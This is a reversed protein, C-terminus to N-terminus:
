AGAQDTRGSDWPEVAVAPVSPPTDQRYPPEFGPRVRIVHGGEERRVFIPTDHRERPFLVEDSRLFVPGGGASSIKDSSRYVSWITSYGSQGPIMEGIRTQKQGMGAIGRVEPARACEPATYVTTCVMM